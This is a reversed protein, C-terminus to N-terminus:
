AAILAMESDNLCNPWTKEPHIIVEFCCVLPTLPSLSDIASLYKTQVTSKWSKVKM